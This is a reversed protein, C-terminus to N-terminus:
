VLSLRANNMLAPLETKKMQGSAVKDALRLLTEVDLATGNIGSKIHTNKVGELYNGTFDGAVWVFNLDNNSMTSPIIRWWENKPFGPKKNKADDIYDQMERQQTIDLPYGQSYAKTDLIIGFNNIDYLFGDPKKPGGLHEGALGIYKKMIEVTKAEFLTADITNKSKTPSKKWAMEIIEIDAPDMNELQNQLSSKIKQLDRDKLEDTVNINPIRFNNINDKLLVKKSEDIINLGFRILGKIDAKLVGIGEFLGREDLYYQIQEISSSSQIAKITYARRTRVYVKNRVSTALMTWDIYKISPSYKSYGEARKLAIEGAMNIKYAHGTYEDNSNILKHLKETTVLGVKALWSAIARAWKDSSGEVKSRFDSKSTVPQNSLVEFWEDESFSTFGPEGSFGLEHGIRFKSLLAKSGNKQKNEELLKLVRVAPPYAIFANVLIDKEERSAEYSKSSKWSGKPSTAFRNGLDTISVINNQDIKLFNLTLAWDVYAGSTYDDTWTKYKKTSFECPNGAALQVLGFAVQNPRTKPGEFGDPFRKAGKLDDFPIHSNDTLLLNLLENRREESYIKELEGNILENYYQSDKIFIQVVKKLKGFNNPNQIWGFARSVM